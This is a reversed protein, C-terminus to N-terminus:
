KKKLIRDAYRMFNSPTNADQLLSCHFVCSPIVHKSSSYFMQLTVDQSIYCRTIQRFDVTTEPYFTKELSNRVDKWAPKKSPRKNSRSSPPFTEWFVDPSEWRTVCPKIGSSLVTWLWLKSLRLDKTCFIEKIRPIKSHHIVTNAFSMCESIVIFHTNTVTWTSKMM